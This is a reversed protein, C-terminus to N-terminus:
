GIGMEGRPVRKTECCDIPNQKEKENTQTYRTKITADECDDWAWWCDSNWMFAGGACCPPLRIIDVKKAENKM